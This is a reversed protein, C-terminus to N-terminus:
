PQTARTPDRFGNSVLFLYLYGCPITVAAVHPQGQFDTSNIFIECEDKALDRREFDITRRGELDFLVAAGPEVLRVASTGFDAIKMDGSEEHTFFTADNKVAGPRNGPNTAVLSIHNADAGVFSFTLSSNPFLNDRLVPVAVTAVSLLAVLLALVESGVTVNGRWDQFSGCHRCKKANAPIPESCIKCAKMRPRIGPIGM